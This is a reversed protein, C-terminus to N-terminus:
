KYKYNIDVYLIPMNQSQLVINRKIYLIFEFWNLTDQGYIYNRYLLFLFGM